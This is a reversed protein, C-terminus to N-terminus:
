RRDRPKTAAAVYWAVGVYMVLDGASVAQAIPAPIGVVDALVLLTSGPGALHHKAGGAGSELEALTSQQGSDVIAQRTIPMGGNAAIVAANMGIGVLLLLMGPAELNVVAFTLLLVFSALVAANGLWGAPNVFQLAVAALALWWAHLRVSPFVRLSGGTALGAIGGIAFTVVILLV